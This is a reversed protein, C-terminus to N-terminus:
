APEGDVSQELHVDVSVDVSEVGPSQEEGPPAPSAPTHHVEVEVTRAIEVARQWRLRLRAYARSRVREANIATWGCIIALPLEAFTATLVSFTFQAGPETTVIDFWADVVLLTAAVAAIPGTATRRTMACYALAGLVVAMACDFGVWAIDYDDARSRGPLTLALYVIWPIIGVACSVALWGLWRPLPLRLHSPIVGLALELAEIPSEPLQGDALPEIWEPEIGGPEIGGPRPRPPEVSTV